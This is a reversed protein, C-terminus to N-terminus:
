VKNEWRYLAVYISNTPSSLNLMRKIQFITYGENRLKIIELEERLYETYLKDQKKQILHMKIFVFIGLSYFLVICTIWIIDKM